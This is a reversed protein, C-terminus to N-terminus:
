LDGHHLGSGNLVAKISPATVHGSQAKGYESFIKHSSSVPGSGQKLWGHRTYVIQPLRYTSM